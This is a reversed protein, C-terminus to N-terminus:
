RGGLSAGPAFFATVKSNREKLAVKLQWETCFHPRSRWIKPLHCATEGMGFVQLLHILSWIHLLPLQQGTKSWTQCRIKGLNGQHSTTARHAGAPQSRGCGPTSSSGTWDGRKSSGESIIANIFVSFKAGINKQPNKLHMKKNENMHVQLYYGASLLLGLLSLLFLQPDSM